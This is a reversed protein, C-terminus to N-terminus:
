KFIKIKEQKEKSFKDQLNNLENSAFPGDNIFTDREENYVKMFEETATKLQEEANKIRNNYNNRLSILRAIEIDKENLGNNNEIEIKDPIREKIRPMPTVISNDNQDDILPSIDNQDDTLSTINNSQEHLENELENIINQPLNREFNKIEEQKRIIEENIEQYNDNIEEQPLNNLDNISKLNNIIGDISRQRQKLEEIIDNAQKLLREDIEKYRNYEKESINNKESELQQM